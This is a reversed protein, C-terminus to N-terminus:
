RIVAVVAMLVGMLVVQHLMYFSLSWRGLMAVARWESRGVAPLPGYLFQPRHQLLYRGAAAGWLMVGFWPFLPVYDETPPRFTVFGLWNSLRSDFFPHALANGLVVVVAGWALLDAASVQTRCVWRAALLMVAMAHLVGFSIYSKPFQVRSAVTVLLACAAIQGWRRWFRSASQGQAVALVQGMGACFLFLSVIVVRQRTWLPDTYFNARLFNFVKLDFCFHFVAMWLLALGRLADLRDARQLPTLPHNKM